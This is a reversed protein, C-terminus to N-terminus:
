STRRSIRRRIVLLLAAFVITAAPVDGFRAYVTPPIATPLSADLVGEIGLGLRAVIRGEPDIVASIGTNAARVVPLGEEIARMRAQQLHQYPGTSIGFWGDNTLNIIWGPRDDRAAVNGPFIAEYCILPLARPADPIELARRRTGPIFGGQVKTLQVFGLKEMLDQFPLYEGFPVLHLKDYVSLVSGDHDIIYISNYARTIRVGPPVDPARVSGTILVTGKPLLDAIQAMADAERTLFFPFASEPWILIQADRVGTSQPGSARDSLTLYKQMVDAKASYNFRVDQQLNPQMIRLKVKTMITPLLTLRVAGFIGMAGLLLLAIVPAIWPKRGRSSGDILVAPSAFIAVCLFTMGWLGILSATQALALPESLAYGFANWPFGTLVHGRLWEGLTLSIALALLRSADRTWLLRALAFGFASFLALYAPLGLVAFPMLWAFTPADVLFAYGIWYLGPVFYGLGFWFGSMAATPVGRWRGAAAGDILWVAVPFTVFLVPWANFPAMALASLAGAVLAIAARKWGWALIIALGAARLKNASMV